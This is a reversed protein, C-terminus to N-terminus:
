KWDEALLNIFFGGLVSRAQFGRQRGSITYYWDTVPVRDPSESIMRAISEYVAELYARDDTMVTTWAMWDLKTYDCRSDLPVGYRNMEKKYVEIEELSVSQDFLGLGLLKDWIINYKMSWTDERDFTLRYGVGDGRKADKVFRAAMDRAVEAYRPEDFMKAYAALAVIAKLSLNCNHALHGAFDDTCLQMDPNYGNEVLYDAWKKLLDRNEEAMTRDGDARLAAAVVLIANGCEEVPMQGNPDVVGDRVRYVQGNCLPYQGCDHPAYPFESWQETRAYDFLPRMMGRVLEPNTILFLPISPYTVDLTAMCGNSLNEKSFFMLRGDVDCLKHACIAQRFCLAGIRAYEPSISEMRAVLRRDFEACERRLDYAERVAVDLMTEFNGYFKKYYADMPKHYYMVSHVDDYAIVFLDSLKDSDAALLPTIAGDIVDGHGERFQKDRSLVPRGGYAHPKFRLLRQEEIEVHASPHVLHLYGWEIRCDDGSRCLVNQEERGVSAHGPKESIRHSKGCLDGCLDAAADFHVSFTHGDEAPIIEYFVYSVPRSMVELRHPLLPTLFTVKLTCAAHRFTYVSSTPTVDVGVQELAPGESHYRVDCLATKGMFRFPKGDVFLLGYLSNRTGTWHRTHDATLENEFAWVDFFPDCAILPVATPKFTSM